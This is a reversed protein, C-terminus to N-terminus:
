TTKVIYNLWLSPVKFLWPGSPRTDSTKEKVMQITKETTLQVSVLDRDEPWDSKPGEADNRNVAM